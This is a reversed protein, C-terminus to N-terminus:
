LLGPSILLVDTLADVEDELLVCCAKREGWGRSVWSQEASDSCDIWNVRDIGVKESCVTWAEVKAEERWEEIQPHEIVESAVANARVTGICNDRRRCRRRWRWRRSARAIWTQPLHFRNLTSVNHNDISVLPLLCYVEVRARQLQSVNWVVAQIHTINKDPLTLAAVSLISIPISVLDGAEVSKNM